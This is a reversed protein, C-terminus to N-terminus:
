PPVLISPKRSIDRVSVNDLAAPVQQTHNLLELKKGLVDNGLDHFCFGALDRDETTLYSIQRFPEAANHAM